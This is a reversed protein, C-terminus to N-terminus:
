DVLGTLPQAPLDPPRLAGEFGTSSGATEEGGRLAVFGAVALFLLGLAVMLTLRVRAPVASFPLTSPSPQGLPDSLCPRVGGISESAGRERGLKWGIGDPESNM